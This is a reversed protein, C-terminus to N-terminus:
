LSNCDTAPSRNSWEPWRAKQLRNEFQAVQQLGAHPQCIVGGNAAIPLTESGNRFGVPLPEPAGPKVTAVCGICGTRLGM